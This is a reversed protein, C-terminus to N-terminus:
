RLQQLYSVLARLEKGTFDTVNPMQAGPKFAQAHTM